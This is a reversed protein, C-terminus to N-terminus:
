RSFLTAVIQAGTGVVILSLGLLGLWWYLTDTALEAPNPTETTLFSFGETPIRYPMGYRFLLIVGILNAVLGFVNLAKMPGWGARKRRAQANQWDLRVPPRRSKTELPTEM